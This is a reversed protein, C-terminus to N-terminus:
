LPRSPLKCVIGFWQEPYESGYGFAHIENDGVEFM